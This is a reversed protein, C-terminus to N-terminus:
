DNGFETMEWWGGIAYMSSSKDRRIILKGEDVYWDIYDHFEYQGDPMRVRLKKM